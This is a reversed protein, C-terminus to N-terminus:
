SKYQSAINELVEFEKLSKGNAGDLDVIHLRKM